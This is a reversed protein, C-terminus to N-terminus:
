QTEGRERQLGLRTRALAADIVRVVNEPPAEYLVDGTRRDTVRTTTGGDDRREVSVSLQHDPKSASAPEIRAADDPGAPPVTRAHVLSVVPVVPHASGRAPSVDM